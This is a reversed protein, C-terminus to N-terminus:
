HSVDFLAAKERCQKHEGMIGMPYQVPMEWGAFDVMKGGLEVHLPYLPTRKVDSM